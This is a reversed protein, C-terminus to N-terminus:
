IQLPQTIDTVPCCDKSFRRKPTIEVMQSNPVVFNKQGIKVQDSGTHLKATKQGINHTLFLLINNVNASHATHVNARIKFAFAEFTLSQILYVLSGM